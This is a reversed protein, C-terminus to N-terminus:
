LGDDADLAEMDSFDAAGVGVIIVSMPLHSGRIVAMKTQEMDTLIGDTLLLLIQYSQVCACLFMCLCVSLCVSVRARLCVCMCVRMRAHVCVCVSVYVCVCECVSVCM